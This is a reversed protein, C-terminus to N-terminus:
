FLGQDLVAQPLAISGDEQQYTEMIAVMLRPLALSSANLTHAYVTNGGTHERYRLKARRAQFDLCNSASSVEYYAKQGPMWVEIDFTKASQFSTDQGALLSVRYHLGLDQLINEACAIMRDLEDSSDQEAVISYLEVKEFEHIRILGRESAGYNGAERRFCSTWSTMRVPLESRELIRDKYMNTLNVEATPTLYLDEDEVKYVGDKFKPLQGATEMSKTNVVYPPLIPDFGHKTNNKMMMMTLSYLLRVGDGRYLAFNSGTTRAAAEFDLWGLNIGLEYHSQPDFTFEKKDGHTKVVVNSEKNGAPVDELAINPCRLHMDKFADQVVKLEKEQEKLQKGVEISQQRIEDTIGSKAQVALDNKQKRLEEIRVSLSRFEEDLKQLRDIDFSPDKKLVADIVSQSDKRLMMLDIM